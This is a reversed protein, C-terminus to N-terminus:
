PDLGHTLQGDPKFAPKVKRKRSFQM